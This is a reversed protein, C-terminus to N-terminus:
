IGSQEEVKQEGEQGIVEVGIRKNRTTRSERKVELPIEQARAGQGVRARSSVNRSCLAFQDDKVLSDSRSSTSKFQFCIIQCPSMTLAASLAAKLLCSSLLLYLSQWLSRQMSAFTM